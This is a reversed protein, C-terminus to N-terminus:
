KFYCKTLVEGRSWKNNLREIINKDSVNGIYNEEVNIYDTVFRSLKENVNKETNLDEITLAGLDVLVAKSSDKKAKYGKLSKEIKEQSYTGALEEMKLDKVAREYLTEGYLNMSLLALIIMLSKKM